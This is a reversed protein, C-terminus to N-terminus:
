KSWDRAYTIGSAIGVIFTILILYIAIPWGLMVTPVTICQLLTTAKGITKVNIRVDFKRVFIFFPTAIIERSLILPLLQFLFERDIIGFKIILFIVFTIMFIRDIVVDFYKGFNTKQNFRRAIEGDFFDTLAFAIFVFFVTIKSYDAFILYVLLITGIGRLATLFNPANTINERIAEKTKAKM